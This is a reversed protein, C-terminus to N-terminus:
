DVARSDPLEAVADPDVLEYRALPYRALTAVIMGPIILSMNHPFPLWVQFAAAIAVAGGAGVALTAIHGVRERWPPRLKAGCRQCSLQFRNKKWM